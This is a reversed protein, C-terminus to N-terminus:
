TSTNLKRIFDWLAVTPSNIFDDLCNFHCWFGTNGVVCSMFLILKQHIYVTNLFSIALKMQLNGYEDNKSWNLVNNGHIIFRACNAGCCMYRKYDIVAQQINIIFSCPYRVNWVASGVYITSIKFAVKYNKNEM